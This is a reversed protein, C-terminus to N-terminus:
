AVLRSRNLLWRHHRRLSRWGPISEEVQPNACAVLLFSHLQISRFLISPTQKFRSKCSTRTGFTVSFYICWVMPGRLRLILLSIFRDSPRHSDQPCPHHFGVKRCPVPSVFSLGTHPSCSFSSGRLPRPLLLVFSAHSGFCDVLCPM